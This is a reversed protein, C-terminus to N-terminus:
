RSDLKPKVGVCLLFLYHSMHAFGTHVVEDNMGFGFVNVFHNEALSGWDERSKCNVHGQRSGPSAYTQSEISPTGFLFVGQPTLSSAVNAFFKDEEESKIHEVLDLAYAADFRTLGDESSHDSQRNTFVEHYPGSLVNWQTSFFQFPPRSFRESEMVFRADFDSVTLEHVKSAVLRSYFADGCGIEIVRNKGALMAAVFKYRSSTFSLRWPDLRWADSSVVGLEVRGERDLSEFHSEYQPEREVM